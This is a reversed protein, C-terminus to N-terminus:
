EDELEACEPCLDHGNVWRWGEARKAEILGLHALEDADFYQLAGCFPNDCKVTIQGSRSM